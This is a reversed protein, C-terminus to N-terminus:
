GPAASSTQGAGMGGGRPFLPHPLRGQRNVVGQPQRDIGPSVENHVLLPGGPEQLDVGQRPHGGVLRTGWSAAATPM